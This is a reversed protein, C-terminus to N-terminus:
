QKAHKQTEKRTLAVRDALPLGKLYREQWYPELSEYEQRLRRLRKEAWDPDTQEYGGGTGGRNSGRARSSRLVNFSARKIVPYIVEPELPSREKIWARAEAIAASENYYAQFPRVLVVDDFIAYTETQRDVSIVPNKM